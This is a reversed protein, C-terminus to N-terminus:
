HDACVFRLHRVMVYMSRSTAHPSGFAPVTLVPGPRSRALRLRPLAAVSDTRAAPARLKSAAQVGLVLESGDAFVGVGVCLAVWLLEGVADGDAAPEDPVTVAPGALLECSAANVAAAWPCHPKVLEASVRVLGLTVFLPHPEAM